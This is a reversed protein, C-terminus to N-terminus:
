SKYSSLTEELRWVGDADRRLLLTGGSGCMSGCSVVLTVIAHRGDASFGPRSLTARGPVFFSQVTGAVGGLPAYASVQRVALKRGDVVVPTRNRAAYDEVMEPELGPPPYARMDRLEREVMFQVGSTADKRVFANTWWVAPDFAYERECASSTTRPM